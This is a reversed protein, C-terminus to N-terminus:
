CGGHKTKIEYTESPSGQVDSPSSSKPERFIYVAAALVGWLAAGVIFFTIFGESFAKFAEQGGYASYLFQAAGCIAGAGWSVNGVRHYIDSKKSTTSDPM